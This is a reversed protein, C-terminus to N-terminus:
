PYVSINGIELLYTLAQGYDNAGTRMGYITRAFRTDVTQVRKSFKTGRLNRGLRMGALLDV